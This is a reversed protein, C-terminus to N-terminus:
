VYDMWNTWTYNWYKPNSRPDIPKNLPTVPVYNRLSKILDKLIQKKNEAENVM